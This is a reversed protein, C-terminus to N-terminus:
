LEPRVDIWCLTHRSPECASSPIEFIWRTVRRDRRDPRKEHRSGSAILPAAAVRVLHWATLRHGIPSPEAIEGTADPCSDLKARGPASETRVQFSPVM